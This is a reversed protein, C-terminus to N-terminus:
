VFVFHQGVHDVAGGLDFGVAGRGLRGALLGVQEVLLLVILRWREPPRRGEYLNEIKKAAKPRDIAGWIPPRSLRDRVFTGGKSPTLPRSDRTFGLLSQLKLM